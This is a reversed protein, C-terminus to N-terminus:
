GEGGSVRARNLAQRMELAYRGNPFLELYNSADHRVDEWREMEMMLPVVRSYATQMHTAVEPKRADRFMIISQYAAVAESRVAEAQAETGFQKEAQLQRELLGAVTLDLETSTADDQAFQKARKMLRVAKNFLQVREERDAIKSALAANAASAAQCIEITRGSKPYDELVSDLHTAAEQYQELAVLARGKDVRAPEQVRREDSMALVRDFAQLAMAAEGEALLEQGAVLIQSASYEGDGAFMQRFYEIAEDRRGLELLNRGIMFVANQAQKSDPYQRQLQQLAEAAEDSQGLITHLTGIQSLATPAFASDPFRHVLEKLERIAKPKYHKDLIVQSPVERKAQRNFYAQVKEPVTTRMADTVASYFISAQLLMENAEQEEPTEAYAAAQDGELLKQVAQYRQQAQNAFRPGMERLLEATRYMASVRLHSKIGAAQLEKNLRALARGQEQQNEQRAHIRAIQSLADYYAAHEEHEDVIKQYYSLAETFAERRMADQAFRRLEMVTRPHKTFYTFFVDFTEQRKHPLEQGAYRNAIRIVQNGAETMLDEKQNFREALHRVTADALITDETELWCAALEGLAGVSTPKEPFLALVKVYSDAAEEFRSQNFLIRAERFQALEVEKWQEETVAIRVEKGFEKALLDKVQEFRTGAQPAWSTNPYRIFVNAFHQLAGSGGAAQGGILLGLAEGESGGQELIRLARDHMIEGVLYRCQAMPSLKTLDEDLEKSQEALAKDIAKLQPTYDLVLKQAGEVDGQMIRMHALIVIARGFWLDQVWLIDEAIKKTEALLTERQKGEAEEALLILTEALEGQIQRKIHKEPEARLAMRYADAAAARRGTLLMMQAYKYASSLYFPKIADEPGDPFQKFFAEYLEQAEDYRGWAYLGDALTLKLTMASQSTGPNANVIQRAEEFKGRATLSRIRRIDMIHDPLKLRQLVMESYDPLGADLLADAYDLEREQEPTLGTGGEDLASQAQVPMCTLAAALLCCVFVCVFPRCTARSNNQRNM